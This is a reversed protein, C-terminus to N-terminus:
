TLWGDIELERMVQPVTDVQDLKLLNKIFKAVLYICDKFRHQIHKAQVPSASLEHHRQAIAIILEEM